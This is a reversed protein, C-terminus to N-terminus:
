VLNIECQDYSSHNVLTRKLCKLMKEYHDYSCINASVTLHVTLEPDDEFSVAFVEGNEDYVYHYGTVTSSLLKVDEGIHNLEKWVDFRNETSAYMKVRERRIWGRDSVYYIWVNSKLQASHLHSNEIMDGTDYEVPIYSVAYSALIVLALCAAVLSWRKLTVSRARKAANEKAQLYAEIYCDDLLGVANLFTEETM